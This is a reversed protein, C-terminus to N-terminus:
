VGHEIGGGGALTGSGRHQRAPGIGEENCLGDGGGEGSRQGSMWWQHTPGEGGGGEDGRSDSAEVVRTM